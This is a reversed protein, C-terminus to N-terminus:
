YEARRKGHEAGREKRREKKREVKKRKDKGWREPQAVAEVKRKVTRQHRRQKVGERVRLLAETYEQTGIKRKLSEMIEESKMKLEKYSDRFLQDTSYPTPINTDTLNSLPLIIMQLCPLLTAPPLSTTLHSILQLSSTKPILAPARPPSTEQRLIFSLRGLLYQLATQKGKEEEEGEIGEEESNEDRTSSPSYWILDNAGAVRALFSLNKVTENALLQTLGPTKFMHVTRKMLDRINDAALTLGCSGRLPLILGSEVNNRAFDSFYIATLRAASLKVWAHPYSLCFRLTTWLPKTNSSLLLNPTRQVLITALQLAFYITEWDSDSHEATRTTELICELLTPIDKDDTVPSDYYFGYTQLALRLVSPNDNQKIWSRLLTLFTATREEDAKRFVEKIVEGAAM